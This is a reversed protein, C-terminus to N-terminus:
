RRGVRERKVLFGRDKLAKVREKLKSKPVIEEIVKTATLAYKEEIPEPKAYDPRGYGLIQTAPRVKKYVGDGNAQSGADSPSTNGEVTRVTRNPLLDSAAIGVHEPGVDSDFNFYVIDGPQIGEAGSHWRHGSRFMTIGTPTYSHRWATIGAKDLVWSVFMACWAFGNMGYWDGFKQRNSGPPHEHKGVQGEAITVVDEATTM